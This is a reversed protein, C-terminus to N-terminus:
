RGLIPDRAIVGLAIDDSQPTDGVFAHVDSLIAEVVGQVPLRLHSRTTELFRDVGLSTGTGNQAETIGDTYLVLVDGPAVHTTNRGWTENEFIGLPMGTRALKLAQGGGGAPFHYPPCHGASAYVLEGTAPDLVGYFATVFQNAQTDSLIRRNVARLVREPQTPHVAAYTRILTWSLAMYLAAAVGKDVVDAILIGFRGNPL